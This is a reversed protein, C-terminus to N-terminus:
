GTTSIVFYYSQEEDGYTCKVKIGRYIIPVNDGDIDRDFESSLSQRPNVSLTYEYHNNKKITEIVYVALYSFVMNGDSDLIYEKVTFKDTVESNNFTMQVIEGLEALPPSSEIFIDQFVYIDTARDFESVKFTIGTGISVTMENEKNLNFIILSVISLGVITIAIAWPLFKRRKM